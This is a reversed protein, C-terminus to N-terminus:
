DLKDAFDPLGTIDAQQKGRMKKVVDLFGAIFHQDEPVPLDGGNTVEGLFPAGIALEQLQFCNAGLGCKRGRELTKTALARNETVAADLHNHRVAHFDPLHEFDRRVAAHLNAPHIVPAIRKFVNEEVRHFLRSRSIATYLRLY